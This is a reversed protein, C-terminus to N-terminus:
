ATQCVTSKRFQHQYHRYCDPFVSVDFNQFFKDIAIANMHQKPLRPVASFKALLYTLLRFCYAALLHGCCDKLPHIKHMWPMNLPSTKRTNLERVLACIRTRSIYPKKSTLAIISEEKGRPILTLNYNSLILDGYVAWRTDRYFEQFSKTIEAGVSIRAKDVPCLTYFTAEVVYENWIDNEWSYGHTYFVDSTRKITGKADDFDRDMAVCIHTANGAAIEHAINLLISKSGVSKFALRKDPCFVGFMKQWFLLDISPKSEDGALVEQFSLSRGGEVFVVADVGLFLHQNSLGAPTRHFIM